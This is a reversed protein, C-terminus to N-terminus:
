TSTRGHRCCGGAAGDARGDDAEAEPGLEDGDVLPMRVGLEHADALPRLVLEVLDAVGIADFSPILRIGVDQLVLVDVGDV